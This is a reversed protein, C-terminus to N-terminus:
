KEHIYKTSLRLVHMFAAHFVFMLAKKKWALIDIKSDFIKPDLYFM